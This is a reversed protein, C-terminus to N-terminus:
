SLSSFSPCRHSVPRPKSSVLGRDHMVLDVLGCTDTGACICMDLMTRLPLRHEKVVCSTKGFKGRSEQYMRDLSVRALDFRPAVCFALAHITCGCKTLHPLYDDEHDHLRSTYTLRCNVGLYAVNNVMCDLNLRLPAPATTPFCVCDSHM